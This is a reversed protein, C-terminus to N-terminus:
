DNYILENQIMRRNYQQIIAQCKKKSLDAEQGIEKVLNHELLHDEKYKYIATFQKGDFQICYKDDIFQYFNNIYNMAFGPSDGLASKGFFISRCDLGLMDLISPSVDAQQTIREIEKNEEMGPEFIVLPIAYIGM